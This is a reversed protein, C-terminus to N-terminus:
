ECALQGTVRFPQVDSEAVTAFDPRNRDAMESIMAMPPRDERRHSLCATIISWWTDPMPDGGCEGVTPREPLCGEVILSSIAYQGVVKGFQPM